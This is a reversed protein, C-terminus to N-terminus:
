KPSKLDGLMDLLEEVIDEGTGRVFHTKKTEYGGNDYAAASPIYSYTGNSYACIFTMKFPSAERLAKGNTDHMESPNTVFAIEGISLAYLKLTEKSKGNSKRYNENTKAVFERKEARFVGSEVETAGELATKVGVALKQGHKKYDGNSPEGRILSSPVLNGAAGQHYSFYVDLEQEAADRLAGVWDASVGTYSEGGTTTPHCQWNCLVIDKKEERDFRIVQMLNDAETEHAYITPDLGHGL